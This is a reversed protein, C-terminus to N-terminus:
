IGPIYTKDEVFYPVYVIRSGKVDFDYRLVQLIGPKEEEYRLFLFESLDTATNQNIVVSKLEVQKDLPLDAIEPNRITLDIEWREALYRPIDAACIYYSRSGSIDPLGTETNGGRLKDTMAIEVEFKWFPIYEPESEMAAEALMDPRAVDYPVVKVEDSTVNLLRHCKKCVSIVEGWPQKVEEGCVPCFLITSDRKLIEHDTLKKPVRVAPRLSTINKMTGSSVFTRGEKFAPYAAMSMAIGLLLLIVQFLESLPHTGAHLLMALSSGIMIGGAALSLIMMRSRATLNIPATGGLIERRVADLIVTYDGGQYEYHAIWVPAYVLEFVKPLLFSKELTLTDIRKAATDDIMQRIAERGRRSAEVASGGPEMAVVMGPTYAIEDGPELWLNTIGYKGTDCAVETWVFEDDILEKYINRITNGTKEDYESYGCAVAKGQAVFRWFPVYILYLETMAAKDPLDPAKIGKTFWDRITRDAVGKTVKPRYMVEGVRDEISRELGM